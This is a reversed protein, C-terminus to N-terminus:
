QFKGSSNSLLGNPLCSHIRSFYPWCTESLSWNDMAGHGPKEKRGNGELFSTEHWLNPLLELKHLWLCQIKPENLLDRTLPRRNKTGRNKTISRLFRLARFLLSFEIQKLGPQCFLDSHKRVVGPLQLQEMCPLILFLNSCVQVQLLGQSSCCVSEWVVPHWAPAGTFSPNQGIDIFYHDRKCYALPNGAAFAKRRWMAQKPLSPTWQNAFAWGVTEMMALATLAAGSFTAAMTNAGFTPFGPSAYSM